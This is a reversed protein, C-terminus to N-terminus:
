IEDLAELLAMNEEETGITIRLAGECLVIHSRDRVIVGKQALTNYVSRPDRFSVLLFNADSPWIKLVNLKESLAKIVKERQHLISSVWDNVRNPEMLAEYVADQTLQSINYPYKIKNMLSIIERDAIAMGLRIGALGWAKSFTQLVVINPYEGIMGAIGDSGSFDLYAEDVIVIADSKKVVMLIEDRNLLNSTPNNPSCLFILKTNRDCANLLASGDLSFDQNLLVDKVAINNIEACVKYMGYTPSISVINDVAPECFIRFLLDIAEDSGNGLFLMDTNIQKIKGILEKVKRQAPDPYRNFPSNYPNENADLLIADEGSFEDRASSYPQLYRINPRVLDLVSQIM